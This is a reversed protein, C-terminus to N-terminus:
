KELAPGRQDHLEGVQKILSLSGESQKTKEKTAEFNPEYTETGAGGTEALEEDAKAETAAAAKEEEQRKKEELAKQIGAAKVKIAESIQKENIVM